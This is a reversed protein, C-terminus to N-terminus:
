WLCSLSPCLAEHMFAWVSGKQLEAKSDSDPTGMAKVSLSCFAELNSESGVGARSEFMAGEQRAYRLPM